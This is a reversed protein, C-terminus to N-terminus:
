KKYGLISSNDYEKMIVRGPNGAVLCGDPVNRSLISGSSVAVNNGVKIKGVITSGTGIWVNDGIEPFGKENSTLGWGTTVNHTISCNEGIVCGIMITAAHAIYFGPGIKSSISIEVHHFLIIFYDLFHHLLKFPLGLIKNKEFLRKSFQGLRYVAVCHLGFHLIWLKIKQILSPDKTKYIIYYYKELDIKLPSKHKCM